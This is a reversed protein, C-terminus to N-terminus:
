TVRVDYRNIHSRSYLIWIGSTLLGLAAWTMVTTASATFQSTLLWATAAGLLEVGWSIARVAATTRGVQESKVAVQKISECLSMNVVVCFSWVASAIVLLTVSGFNQVGTRAVAAASLGPIGFTAILLTYTSLRSSIRSVFLGAIVDGIGGGTFVIGLIFPSLRLTSVLHFLYLAFFMSTFFNFHTASATTARIVPTKWVLTIGSTVAERFASYTSADTRQDKPQKPRHASTPTTFAICLASALYSFANVTIALPATVLSVLAGALSPGGVEGTSQTAQMYGNARVLLPTPVLDRIYGSMTSDFLVGLGATFFVVVLVLELSEYGVLFAAPIVMIVAARTINLSILLRRRNPLDAVSGGLFGFLIVALSEAMSILTVQSASAGLAAIVMIPVAIATIQMGTSSLTEGAWLRAFSSPLKNKGASHQSTAETTMLYLDGRKSTM